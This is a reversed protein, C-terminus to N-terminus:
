LAHTSPVFGGTPPPPVGALFCSEEVRTKLNEYLMRQRDCPWLNGLYEIAPMFAKSTDLAITLSSDYQWLNLANNVQGMFWFVFFPRRSLLNKSNGTVAHMGLMFREAVVAQRTLWQQAKRRHLTVDSSILPIFRQFDHSICMRTNFVYERAQFIFSREIECIHRNLNTEIADAELWAKVAFQAKESESATTSYRMRACGHWLLFSRDFLAWITEKSSDPTTISEGSFLLAYNSPDALFLDPGALHHSSAYAVHGAALTLASWCLRRCSEKRIDGETWSPDWAPTHAWMPAHEVSEPSNAALSLSMCHCKAPSSSPYAPYAHRGILVPQNAALVLNPLRDAVVPVSGPTFQTARPNDADVLTLSLSRIYADLMSLASMSREVSHKPHACIEFMALLWAAQALTEDIWGSSYSSELASQAMEKLLLARERGRSGLGAESSQWFVSMALIALILSPQMRQRRSEDYYNGFFTPLHFFSFWYNSSRFLFRLDEAIAQRGLDRDSRTSPYHQDSPFSIYLSLLSDWWTKRTFESSPQNSINQVDEDENEDDHYMPRLYGGRSVLTDHSTALFNPSEDDEHKRIYMSHSAVLTDPCHENGHCPCGRSGSHYSNSLRPPESIYTRPSEIRDTSTSMSIGPFYGAVSRGSDSNPSHVSQLAPPSDARRRRRGGVDKEMALKLDRAMRQRAGPTKDPGRRKPASDYNCEDTGTNRKSCNHCVPRAGDCRIKRSRCQVCAVYVRARPKGQTTPPQDPALAIKEKTRRSKRAPKSPETPIEPVPTTWNDSDGSADTLSSPPLPFYPYTMPQLGADSTDLAASLEIRRARSTQHMSSSPGSHAHYASSYLSQSAYQPTESVAIRIDSVAAYQRPTNYSLMQRSVDSHHDGYEQIHDGHKSRYMRTDPASSSTAQQAENDSYYYGAQYAEADRRRSSEGTAYM